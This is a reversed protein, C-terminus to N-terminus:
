GRRRGRGEERKKYLLGAQFKRHCRFLTWEVARATVGLARAESRLVGLYERWQPFTFGTGGPRSSVVGLVHLLQWARIDLVGYRRPELLTLIASAVPVSVGRLGTLLALRRRESRSALARRTVARVTAARNLRYHRTARPSKWRCIEIFELRTLWRRRRAPRLRRMLALTEPDERRFLERRLLTRLSRYPLPHVPM